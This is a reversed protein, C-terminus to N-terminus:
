LKKLLERIIFENYFPDVLLFNRSWNEVYYYKVRTARSPLSIFLFYIIKWHFRFRYNQARKQSTFGSAMKEQRLAWEVDNADFENTHTQNINEM